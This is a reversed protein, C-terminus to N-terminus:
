GFPLLEVLWSVLKGGSDEVVGWKWSSWHGGILLPEVVLRGTWSGGVGVSV